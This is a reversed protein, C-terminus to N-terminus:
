KTSAVKFSLSKQISSFHDQTTEVEIHAYFKVGQRMGEFKVQSIPRVTLGLKTLEDRVERAEREVQEFAENADFKEGIFTVMTYVNLHVLAVNQYQAFQVKSKM